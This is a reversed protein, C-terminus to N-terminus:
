PKVGIIYTPVDDESFVMPGALEANPWLMSSEFQRAMQESMLVQIVDEPKPKSTAKPFKDPMIKV